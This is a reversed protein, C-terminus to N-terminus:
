FHDILGPVGYTPMPRAWTEEYYADFLFEPETQIALARLVPPTDQIFTDGLTPLATFEQALHWIDLSGAATSRFKGTISSQKFRMDAFREQYGFVLEDATTGQTYIEKNLVAQEGIHALAPWYMDLATSISLKRQLGQQYNIDARIAVLGLVICHETFSKTFGHGSHAFTGMGALNAQPTTADTSSTQPIPTTSIRTSGGGLYQPRTARLDPSSVGFHALVKEIYRTGGRADRELLKQVQFALRLSNITAATATSLDAYIGPFGANLDDERIRFGGDAGAPDILNNDNVPYSVGATAGSEYVTTAAGSFTQNVKGIGKVYARSGLPLTVATGKQPWPLCSTFYDHRKGRRRLPYDTDVDPGDDMDVVPSNQLNEDRFWERYILNYARHWLSTHQWAVAGIVGTPITLYDSLSHIAYGAAPRVMKPTLYSTSDGPNAQEGMFKPFNTWILRIPVSFFFTDCYMNDMVPVIQAGLRAFTNMKVNATDGPYALDMYVPVLYGSDLTTKYGNSRNFSSRPINAQPVQAFNHKMVSPLAGSTLNGLM